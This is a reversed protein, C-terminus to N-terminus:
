KTHKNTRSSTTTTTITSHIITRASLFLFKGGQRVTLWLARRKSLCSWYLSCHVGWRLSHALEAADVLWVTHRWPLNWYVVIQESLRHTNRRKSASTDFEISNKKERIATHRQSASPAFLRLRATAKLPLTLNRGVGHFRWQLKWPSGILM